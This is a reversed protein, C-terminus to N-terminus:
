DYSSSISKNIPSKRKATLLASRLFIQIFNVWLIHRPIPMFLDFVTKFLDMGFFKNRKIVYM